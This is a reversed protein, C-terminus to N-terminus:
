GGLQQLLRQALARESFEDDGALLKKLLALADDKRDAAALAQALHFEINPRDTDTKSAEKLQDVADNIAGNALLVVGLTDRIDASEPALALAERAQPLAEDFKGLRYLMLAFNNRILADDPRMTTLQLYQASAEALQGTSVCLDAWTKRMATDGPHADLWDKITKRAQYTQGLKLEAEALLRRDIGDESLSVARAFIQAAENIRNQQQAIVGDLRIVGLDNAYDAKLKDVLNRADSLRDHALLARALVLKAAKNNPEFRLAEEAESIAAWQPHGPTRQSLYGEALDIHATASRPQKHVLAQFTMLARDRQGLGLQARGVIHLLRPDDPFKKLASLGAELAGKLDASTLRYGALAAHMVPEDPNNRVGEVLTTEAAQLNGIRREVTSLEVYTQADHQHQKLIADYYQRAEDLKHEEIALAAL